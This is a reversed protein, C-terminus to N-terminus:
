LREPGNPPRRWWEHGKLIAPPAGLPRLRPDREWHSSMRNIDVRQSLLQAGTADKLLVSYFDLDTGWEDVVVSVVYTTNVMVEELRPNIEDANKTRLEIFAERAGTGGGTVVVARVPVGRRALSLRLYSALAADDMTAPDGPVPLRALLAQAVCFGTVTCALIVILAWWLSRRM